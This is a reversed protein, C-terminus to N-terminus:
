EVMLSGIKWTDPIPPVLANICLVKAYQQLIVGTIKAPLALQAKGDTCRFHNPWAKREQPQALPYRVYRWGDFAHPGRYQVGFDYRPPTRVTTWRKGNSDRLELDIWAAGNGYLWAGVLKARAPIVIEGVPRIVSYRFRHPSVMPDDILSVALAKAEARRGETPSLEFSAQKLPLSENLAEAEDCRTKDPQWETPNAFSCLRRAKEGPKSEYVPSGAAFREAEAANTLWVPSTGVTFHATGDTVSLSRSNGQSDTLIPQAGPKAALEVRRQGRITWIAYVPGDRRDFRVACTVTSGTPVVSHFRARDLMRTMTGYAVYAPKPNLEPGMHCLGVNGYGTWHYWGGVDWIGGSAGFREVGMSLGRLFGQVYVHAQREELERSPYYGRDSGTYFGEFIHLPLDHYGYHEAMQRLYYFFNMRDGVFDLGLGDFYKRPFKRSLCTSIFQPYGNGFVLKKKPFHQRVAESYTLGKSWFEQFVKEQEPTLPIPKPDELLEPPFLRCHDASIMTEAFVSLHDIDLMSEIIKVVEDPTGRRHLCTYYARRIGYKAPPPEQVFGHAWRVGIKSLLSCAAEPGAGYHAKTFAWMGFPSDEDAERIGPPLSAFTTQRRLLQEGNASCLRVDLYHLGRKHVPVSISKTDRQFPALSYDVSLSSARGYFDTATLAIKGTQPADTTNQLNVKFVSPQPEIFVHGYEDSTVTMEVPSEILTAALIHVGVPERQTPPHGERVPPATLDLELYYEDQSGLFDQFAGPDLPVRVLWLRGRERTTKGERLMQMDALAIADKQSGIDSWRPIPHCADLVNGRESKLMRVNLVNPLKTNAAAIIALARYQRRPVRLIMRKPDRHEAHTMRYAAEGRYKVESIDLTNPQGPEIDWRFPIGQAHILQSPKPLNAHGFARRDGLDGGVGQGNYHSTLNLPLFADTASPLTEVRLSRVRNGALLFLSVGGRTWTPREVSAMLIGDLWMRTQLPTIEIRMRFWRHQHDQVDKFERELSALFREKLESKRRYARPVWANFDPKLWSGREVSDMRRGMSTVRPRPLRGKRDAVRTMLMFPRSKIAAVGLEYGPRVKRGDRECAAALYAYRAPQLKVEATAAYREWGKGGVWLRTSREAELVPQEHEVVKLAGHLITWGDPTGKTFDGPRLEALVQSEIERWWQTDTEARATPCGCTAALAALLPCCHISRM